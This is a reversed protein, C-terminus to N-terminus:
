YEEAMMLQNWGVKHAYKLPILSSGNFLGVLTALGIGKMFTSAFLRAESKGNNSSTMDKEELLSSHLDKSVGINLSNIDVTGKGIATGLGVMGIMMVLVSLLSFTHNQITEKFIYAGWIYSVIVSCM